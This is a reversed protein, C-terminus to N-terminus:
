KPWIDVERSREEEMAKYGGLVAQAIGENDITAAVRYSKGAAHGLDYKNGFIIFPKQLTRCLNILNEKTNDAIDESMILLCAKGSALSSKVAMAGSSLMGGKQALGIQNYLKKM